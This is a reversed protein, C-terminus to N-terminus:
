NIHIQLYIIYEVLHLFKFLYNISILITCIDLMRLFISNTSSVKIKKYM